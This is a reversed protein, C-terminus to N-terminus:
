EGTGDAVGRVGCGTGTQRPDAVRRGGSAAIKKRGPGQFQLTHDHATRREAGRRARRPFLPSAQRAGGVGLATIAAAINILREETKLQARVRDNYLPSRLAAVVRCANYRIDPSELDGLHAGIKEIVPYGDLAVLSEYAAERVAHSDADGALRVLTVFSSDEPFHWLQDAAARRVASLTDSAALTLTTDRFAPDVNETLAQVIALRVPAPGSEALLPRMPGLDPLQLIPPITAARGPLDPDRFLGAWDEASLRESMRGALAIVLDRCVRRWVGLSQVEGLVASGEMM